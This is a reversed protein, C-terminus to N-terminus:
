AGNHGVEPPINQLYKNNPAGTMNRLPRRPADIIILGHERRHMLLTLKTQVFVSAHQDNSHDRLELKKLDFPLNQFKADLLTELM